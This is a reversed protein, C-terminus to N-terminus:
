EDAKHFEAEKADIVSSISADGQSPASIDDAYRIEYEKKAKVVRATSLLESIGYLILLCGAIVGMVRVSFPNFVLLIGGAIAAISLLLSTFRTGLLTMMTSLVLLQLGGFIVLAIGILSVIFGAVWTPNLFLLLGLVIDVVANVSMLQLSGSQRRSSIGYFLSVVGSAFLFCAIIKVVTVPADSGFVMVLGIGIAALARVISSFKTKYGFTIMM